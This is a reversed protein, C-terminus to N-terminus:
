RRLREAGARGAAAPARVLPCFPNRLLAPDVPKRMTMNAQPLAVSTTEHCMNSSDPLNNHGYLRALLQFMYSTELSARGSTYFVTAKPDLQCLGANATVVSNTATVLTMQSTETPANSLYTRLEGTLPHRRLVLWVEPGPLGERM